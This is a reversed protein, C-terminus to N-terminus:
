TIWYQIYCMSKGSNRHFISRSFRWMERLRVRVSLKDKKIMAHLKESIESLKEPVKVCIEGAVSKFKKLKVLNAIGLPRRCASLKKIRRPPRFNATRHPCVDLASHLFARFFKWNHFHAACRPHFISDRHVPLPQLSAIVTTQRGIEGLMSFFTNKLLTALACSSIPSIQPLNSM